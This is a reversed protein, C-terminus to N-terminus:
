ISESDSDPDLSNPFMNPEDKAEQAQLLVHHARKSNKSKKLLELQQERIKNEAYRHTQAKMALVKFLLQRQQLTRKPIDPQIPIRKYNTRDNDKDKDKDNVSEKNKKQTKSSSPQTVKPPPAATPQTKKLNNM